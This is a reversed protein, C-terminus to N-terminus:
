WSLLYNGKHSLPTEVTRVAQPIRELLYEASMNSMDAFRGEIGSNMTMYGHKSKSVVKDFYQTQLSFPLESFAYNSILLNWSGSHDSTNRLTRATYTCSLPTSEIFRTILLNVQWLDIFTYSKVKAIKDLIVAQGGFGCGIEVVDGM